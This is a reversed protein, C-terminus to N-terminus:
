AAYLVEGNELIEKLFQDGIELRDQVEEPNLVIVELPIRRSPDSVLSRVTVRRDIPRDHTDKIILFDIDSDSDPSGYAYSGFLIVKEPKYATKLKEVISSTLNRINEDPSM